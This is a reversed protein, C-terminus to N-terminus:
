QKICEKLNELLFRVNSVDIQNREITGGMEPDLLRMVAEYLINDLSQVTSEMDGISLYREWKQYNFVPKAM